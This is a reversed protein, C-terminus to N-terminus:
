VVHPTWTTENNMAKQTLYTIRNALIDLAYDLMYTPCVCTEQYTKLVKRMQAISIRVEFFHASDRVIVALPIAVRRSAILPLMSKQETPEHRM